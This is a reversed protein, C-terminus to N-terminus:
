VRMKKKQPTSNNNKKQSTDSYGEKLLYELILLYMVSYKKILPRDQPMNKPSPKLLFKGVVLKFFMLDFVYKLNLRHKMIPNLKDFELNYCEIEIQRVFNKYVNFLRPLYCISYKKRIEMYQEVREPVNKFNELIEPAAHHIVPWTKGFHYLMRLPASAIAKFDERTDLQNHVKNTLEAFYKSVREASNKKMEVEYASPLYYGMQEESFIDSPYESEFNRSEYMILDFLDVLRYNTGTHSEAAMPDQHLNRADILFYNALMYEHPTLYPFKKNRSMNLDALSSISRYQNRFLATIPDIEKKTQPKEQLKDEKKLGAIIKYLYLM